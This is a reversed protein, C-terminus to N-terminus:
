AAIRDLKQLNMEKKITNLEKSQIKIVKQYIEFKSKVSDLEQRLYEILLNYKENIKREINHEVVSTPTQYESLWGLSGSTSDKEEEPYKSEKNFLGELYENGALRFVAKDREITQM